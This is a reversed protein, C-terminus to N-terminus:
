RALEFTQLNELTTFSTTVSNSETNILFAYVEILSAVTVFQLMKSMGYLQIGCVFRFNFVIFSFWFMPALSINM